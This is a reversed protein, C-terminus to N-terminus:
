KGGNGNTARSPSTAFLEMFIDEATMPHTVCDSAGVTQSISRLHGNESASGPFIAVWERVGKHVRLAGPIVLDRPPATPFLLSVKTYRSRLEDISGHALVKGQDLVIIRDAVRDVDSLIHTSFFVTRGQEPLLHVVADLFEQRVLPDLGTTPEDLILIEPNHSLAICLALKAMEGRSLEKVKRNWPLGLLASIRTCEAHSWNRYIGAVFKFVQRISMWKYIHHLDPVYGVRQRVEMGHRFPDLGLVHVQGHTPPLLGLIMKITSTKGAGNPGLFGCISGRPIQLSLNDVAIKRRYRKSLSQLEIAFTSSTM